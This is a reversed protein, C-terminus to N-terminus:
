KISYKNFMKGYTIDSKYMSGLIKVDELTVFTTALFKLCNTLAERPHLSGNTWIELIIHCQQAQQIKKNKSLLIFPQVANEVELSNAEPLYKKSDTQRNAEMLNTITPTKLSFFPKQKLLKTNQLGLGQLPKDNNNLVSAQAESWATHKQQQAKDVEPPYSPAMSQAALFVQDTLKLGSVAEPEYVESKYSQEFWSSQQVITNVKTVPMFVSDLYIKNSKFRTAGGPTKMVQTNLQSNNNFGSAKSPPTYPSADTISSLDLNKQIHNRQKIEALDLNKQKQKLFGKGENIYIKMNLIGDEALTAIPQDPNICQIGPPLIIDSAKIICPGRERLYAVKDAQSPYTEPPYHWAGAPAQGVINTFLDRKNTNVYALGRDPSPMKRFALNQLNCIIDLVTEQVGPLSSFKHLVRDIEVAIIALGSLEALLTRRLSLALTQSFSEDFPGLYFCGYFSNPSEIRSEKCCIFFKDFLFRSYAFEPRLNKQKKQYKYRAISRQDMSLSILGNKIVEEQPYAKPDSEPEARYLFAKPNKKYIGSGASFVKKSLPRHDLTRDSTGQRDLGAKPKATHKKLVM